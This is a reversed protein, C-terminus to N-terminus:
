YDSLSKRQRNLLIAGWCFSLVMLCSGLYFSIQALRHAQNLWGLITLLNGWDHSDEGMGSILPLGRYTADAIYPSLDIFNQGCWWLMLSAAFPNHHQVLFVLGLLLPLIVQFLSGGLLAMFHGLPRFLVHGFEHFPLNINHMFSSGIAEWSLGDVMFRCGWVLFFVYALCRGWFTIRDVTEPTYLILSLLRSWLSEKTSGLGM